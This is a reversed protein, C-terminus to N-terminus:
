KKSVTKLLAELEPQVVCQKDIRKMRQANIQTAAIHEETQKGSTLGEEAMKLVLVKYSEYSYGAVTNLFTLETM